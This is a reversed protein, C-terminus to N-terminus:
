KGKRSIDITTETSFKIMVSEEITSLYETHSDFGINLSQSDRTRVALGVSCLARRTPISGVCLKYSCVTAEGCYSRLIHILCLNHLM